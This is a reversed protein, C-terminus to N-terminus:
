FMRAKGKRHSVAHVFLFGPAQKDNVTFRLTHWDDETDALYLAYDFFDDPAAPYRRNRYREYHNELQDYLRNLVALLPRRPLISGLLGSVLPMVIVHM